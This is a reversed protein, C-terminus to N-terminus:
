SAYPHALGNRAFLRLIHEHRFIIRVRQLDCAGAAMGFEVDVGGEPDDKRVLSRWFGAGINIQGVGGANEGFLITLAFVLEAIGPELFGVFFVDEGFFEFFGHLFGFVGWGAFGDAVEVEVLRRGEGGIRESNETVVAYETTFEEDQALSEWGHDLAFVEAEAEWFLGEDKARARQEHADEVDGGVAEGVAAFECIGASGDIVGEGQFFGAGVDEVDPCFGCAGAGVGDGGVFFEAAKEWDQL